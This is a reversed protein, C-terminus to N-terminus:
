FLDVSGAAMSTQEVNRVQQAGRTRAIREIASALDEAVLADDLAAAVAQLREIREIVTGTLQGIIDEFQLARIAHAATDKVQRTIGELEDLCQSVSRAVGDLEGLMGDVQARSELAVAAGSHAIENMLTRLAHASTRATAVHAAIREALDHSCRAVDKVESAVVAFGRGADGVRTAEIRANLALMHSSQSIREFESLLKLSHDFTETLGGLRALGDAGRKGMVELNSALAKLIAACARVFADMSPARSPEAPRESGFSVLLTELIRKQTAAHGALRQFSTALGGVAEGLLTRVRALEGAMAALEERLVDRVPELLQRVLPDV